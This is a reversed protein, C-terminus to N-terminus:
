EEHRRKMRELIALISMLVLGVIGYILYYGEHLHIAPDTLTYTLYMGYSIVILYFVIRFVLFKTNKNFIDRILIGFGALIGVLVYKFYAEFMPIDFVYDWGNPIIIGFFVSVTVLIITAMIFLRVWGNYFDIKM